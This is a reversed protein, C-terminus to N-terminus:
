SANIINHFVVQETETIWKKIKRKFLNPHKCQRLEAPLTNYLTAAIYDYCRQGTTKHKRPVIVKKVKYSRTNGIHTKDVFEGNKVSHVLITNCYLQRIDMQSSESFLQATPYLYPKQFIIKLVKKQLTELSKISNNHAGGWAIIGYSLVSQFLASYMIILQKTSLIESLKKIIFVTFRLKNTVYQTHTKWKLCKDVYVGLYKINEVINIKTCTCNEKDTCKESHVVINNLTPTSDNYCGFLICKTKEANLTLM